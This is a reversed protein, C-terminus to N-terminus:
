PNKLKELTAKIFEPIDGPYRSSIINGDEVVEQDLYQAGANIIDQKISKWGTIKRGKLVKATILIQPAHCIAFVPKGSEVFERTFKVVNENIRLIDPSYGGPILLADFDDVHSKEIDPDIIVATDKKGKVVSGKNIGIHILEHGKNKFASAPKIYEVDEFLNDVLVAIVSM